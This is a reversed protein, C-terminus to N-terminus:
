RRMKCRFGRSVARRIPSWSAMSHWPRKEAAEDEAAVAQEEEVPPVVADREAPVRDVAFVTPAFKPDEVTVTRLADATLRDRDLDLDVRHGRRGDVRETAAFKLAEANAMPAASPRVSEATTATAAATMTTTRTTMATTMAATATTPPPRFTTSDAPPELAPAPKVCQAGNTAICHSDIYFRMLTEFKSIVEKNAMMRQADNFINDKQDPDRQLDYLQELDYANPYLKDVDYMTDVSDTARFIYQYQGSVMSHSNKIDLYKYECSAEGDAVQDFSPDNIAGVVDDLYSVGDMQYGSPLSVGALEFITSALDV